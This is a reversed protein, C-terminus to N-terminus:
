LANIVKKKVVQKGTVFVKVDLGAQGFSPLGGVREGVDKVQPATDLELIAAGQRRPVYLVCEIRNEATM